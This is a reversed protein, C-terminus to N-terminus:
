FRFHARSANIVIFVVFGYIVVTKEVNFFFYYIFVYIFEGKKAQSRDKISLEFGAIWSWQRRYSRETPKRALTATLKIDKKCYLPKYM